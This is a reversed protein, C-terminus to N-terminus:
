DKELYNKYIVENFGRLAEGLVAMSNALAASVEPHRHCWADLM